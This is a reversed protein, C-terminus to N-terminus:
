LAFPRATADSSKLFNDSLAILKDQAIDFRIYSSPFNREFRDSGETRDDVCCDRLLTRFPALNNMETELLEM